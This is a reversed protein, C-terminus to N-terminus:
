PTHRDVPSGGQGGSGTQSKGPGLQVGQESALRRAIQGEARAEARRGLDGLVEALKGHGRMFNPRMRISERLCAESQLLDGNRHYKLALNFHSMFGEKPLGAGLGLSVSLTVLILLRGAWGLSRAGGKDRMLGDAGLGALLLLGPILALRFRDTVMFALLVALAPGNVLHVIGAGRKRAVPMVCAGLALALVLTWGVPTWRLIPSWRHAQYANRDGPYEFGEVVQRLKLGVLAFWDWPHRAIWRRAKSYYHSSLDAAGLVQGTEAQAMASFTAHMKDPTMLGEVLIGPPPHIRGNAGTHNGLYFNIGGSANVLVPDGGVSQNHLASPALALFLGLAFGMPLIREGPQRHTILCLWFGLLVGSALFYARAVAALGLLCGASLASSFRGGTAARQWQLLGACVLFLHLTESLLCESFFILPGYFASLLGTMLGARSGFLRAGLTALISVTAASLVCQVVVALGMSAGTVRYLLGLAYPYLPSLFFVEGDSWQGDAIRLAWEHYVRDDVNVQLWFPSGASAFWANGLRLALALVFLRLTWSRSLPLGSADLEASL